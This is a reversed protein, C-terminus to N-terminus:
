KGAYRSYERLVRVLEDHDIGKVSHGLNGTMDRGAVLANM